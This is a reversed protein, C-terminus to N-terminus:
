ENTAEEGMLSKYVSHLEKKAFCINTYLKLISKSVNAALMEDAGKCDDLFMSLDTIADECVDDSLFSIADELGYRIDRIVVAVDCAGQTTIGNVKQNTM